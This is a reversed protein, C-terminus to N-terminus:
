REPAVYAVGGSWDHVENRRSRAQDHFYIAAVV